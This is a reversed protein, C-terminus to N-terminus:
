KKRLLLLLLVAGLGIGGYLLLKKNPSSTTDTATGLLDQKANQISTESLSTITALTEQKQAEEKAKAQINLCDMQSQLAKVKGEWQRVVPLRVPNFVEKPQAAIQKVLSEAKIALADLLKQIDDCTATPYSAWIKNEDDQTESIHQKRLKSGFLNAWDEGGDKFFDNGGTFNKFHKNDDAFQHAGLRSPAHAGENTREIMDIAM